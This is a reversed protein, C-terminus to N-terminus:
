EYNNIVNIIDDKLNKPVRYEIQTETIVEPTINNIVTAVDELINWEQEFRCLINEETLKEKLYELTIDKGSDKSEKIIDEFFEKQKYISSECDGRYEDLEDTVEQLREEKLRIESELESLKEKAEDEQQIIKQVINM